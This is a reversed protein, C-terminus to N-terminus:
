SAPDEPLAELEVIVTIALLWMERLPKRSNLAVTVHKLHTTKRVTGTSSTVHEWTVLETLHRDSGSGFKNISRQRLSTLLEVYQDFITQRLQRTAAADHRRDDGEGMSVSQYVNAVLSSGLHGVSWHVPRLGRKAAEKVVVLLAEVAGAQDAATPPRDFVSM